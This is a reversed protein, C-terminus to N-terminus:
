FMKYIFPPKRDEILMFCLGASLLFVVTILGGMYISFNYKYMYYYIGHFNDDVKGVIDQETLIWNDWNNSINPKTRIEFRNELAKVEAVFHTFVEKKGDGDYDAYFTIIEGVELKEMDAKKIVVIDGIELVGEMSDTQVTLTSFGLYKIKTKSPLFNYIVFLIAVAFFLSVFADNLKRVLNSTKQKM